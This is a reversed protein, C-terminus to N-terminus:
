CTLLYVVCLNNYDFPFNIRYKKKTVTSEFQDGIEFIKCIDCNSHGCINTCDDQYIFAILKSRLLKGRIRKTNRFALRPPSILGSHLRPSKLVHKYAIRLLPLHYIIM